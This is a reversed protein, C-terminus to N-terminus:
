PRSPDYSKESSKWTKLDFIFFIGALILGAGMVEPLSILKHDFILALLTTVPAGLALLCTAVSLPIRKLGSYYTIVYGILLIATILTWNIQTATLQSIHNLQGTALLFIILFISGFFMRGGAVVLGSLKKLVHKSLILEASWFLVALFVLLDGKNLASPTLKLLLWTGALLAIIALFLKKNIKEKLFIIALVAVPLFMAKQILGAKAASTISLGKFFLLFPIAGGVLGIIILNLVDKKNLSKIEKRRGVILILSALFLAVIVNKLATFVYPNIVSVSFKNLYISLGSILATSIVLLYGKKM